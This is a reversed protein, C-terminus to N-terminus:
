RMDVIREITTILEESTVDSTPSLLQPKQAILHKEFQDIENDLKETTTQYQKCSSLYRRCLEEHRDVIDNSSSDTTTRRYG